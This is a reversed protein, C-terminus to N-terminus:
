VNYAATELPQTLHISNNGAQGNATGTHRTVTTLLSDLPSVLVYYERQIVGDLVADNIRLGDTIKDNNLDATVISITSTPHPYAIGSTGLSFYDFSYDTMNFNTDLVCALATFNANQPSRFSYSGTIGDSLNWLYQESINGGTVLVIFYQNSILSRNVTWVCSYRENIGDGNTDTLTSETKILASITTINALSDQRNVHHNSIDFNSLQSSAESEQAIETRTWQVSSKSLWKMKVWHLLGPTEDLTYIFDPQNSTSSFAKPADFLDNVTTTDASISKDFMWVDTLVNSNESDYYGQDNRSLWSIDTGVKTFKSERDFIPNMQRVIYLPGQTLSYHTLTIDHYEPNSDGIQYPKIGEGFTKPLHRTDRSVSPLDVPIKAKLKQVTSLGTKDILGAYTLLDRNTQTSQDYLAKSAGTAYTSRDNNTLRELVGYGYEKKSKGYAAYAYGALDKKLSSLTKSSLHQDHDVDLALDMEDIDSITLSAAIDSIQIQQKAEDINSLAFASNVALSYLGFLKSTSFGLLKSTALEKEIYRPVMKQLYTVTASKGIDYVVAGPNTEMYTERIADVMLDVTEQSMEDTPTSGFEKSNNFLEAQNRMSLAAAQKFRENEPYQDAIDSLLAIKYYDALTVADKYKEVSYIDIEDYNSGFHDAAKNIQKKVQEGIAGKLINKLNNNSSVEDFLGKSRVPATRTMYAKISSSKVNWVKTVTMENDIADAVRILAFIPSAANDSPDNPELSEHHVANSIQDSLITVKVNENIELKDEVLEVIKDIGKNVFDMWTVLEVIQSQQKVSIVDTEIPPNYQSSVSDCLSSIIKAIIIPDTIEKGNSDKITIMSNPNRAVNEATTGASIDMGSVYISYQKSDIVVDKWKPNDYTIFLMYNNNNSNTEAIAHNDNIILNMTKGGSIFFYPITFTYTKTEHANFNAFTTEDYVVTGFLDIARFHVASAGKSGLNEIKATVILDVGSKTYTPKELIAFDPLSQYCAIEGLAYLYGDANGFYVVGDAIAPSSWVYSETTFRWKEKGTTADIAYLNHDDSGVYVTNGAVAPSSSIHTYKYLNETTFKWKEKGTATDIAFLNRNGSSVYVTNDSVAPSSSIYSETTFRWKEKGTIANIAYLNHDASGVYVVDNVIAASSYAVEGNMLNDVDGASVFRWKEIGTEADIAYFNHNTCGIYVVGNAIAPSSEISSGKSYEGNGTDFHWKEIGTLTDIAYLNHNTCGVYVVTGSVTPASRADNGMRFQWKEIGTVADVACLYGPETVIYVVNEVIAPSIIKNTMDRATFRWKETGTTTDIAFFNDSTSGTYVTSNAISPSTWWDYSYQKDTTKFKWLLNKTPEIGGNDYVGSHTPDSRFMTAPIPPDVPSNILPTFWVDNKWILVFQYGGLIWMRSKFVVSEPYARPTRTNTATSHIWKNGDTSYWDDNLLDDSNDLGGLVWIKNDFVVSQFYFRPSWASSINALTWTIGDTSYWVDNFIHHVPPDEMPETGGTTNWGGLVWMKNDFVVAQHGERQSWPANTTARTWSIGDTSFWVDNKYGDTAAGGIVWMKNDFVVAQPQYRQSWPANATAQTWSIGDTSHWVDNKNEVSTTGGIVWM